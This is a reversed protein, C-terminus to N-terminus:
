WWSPSSYNLIKLFTCILLIWASCLSPYEQLIKKKKEKYLLVINYSVFFKLKNIRCFGYELYRWIYYEVHLFNVKILRLHVPLVCTVSSKTQIVECFSNECLKLAEESSTIALFHLCFVYLPIHPATKKTVKCAISAHRLKM